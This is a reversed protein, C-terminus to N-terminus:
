GKPISLALRLGVFREIADAQVPYRVACRVLIPPCEANGGRVCRLDSGPTSRAHEDKPQGGAYNMVFGDGCMESVNGLMDSLGFANTKNKRLHLSVPQTIAVDGRLSNRVCWVHSQDFKAGWYYDTKAGARCAWEWESESPMRIGDGVFSLLRQAEEWGPTWPRNPSITVLLKARAKALRRGAFRAMIRGVTARSLETHAILFPPISVEHQPVEIEPSYKGPFEKGRFREPNGTGM